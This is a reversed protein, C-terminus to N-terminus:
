SCIQEDSDYSIERLPNITSPVFLKLDDNDSLLSWYMMHSFIFMTKISLLVEDHSQEESLSFLDKYTLGHQYLRMHYQKLHRENLWVPQRRKPMFFDPVYDQAAFCLLRSLINQVLRLLEDEQVEDRDTRTYLMNKIAPQSSRYKMLGEEDLCWLLATKIVHSSFFKYQCFYKSMRKVVMYAAKVVQRSERLLRSEARAFSVFGHPETWGIWPYKGQPQTFVILCDEARCLESKRAEDPWWDTIRLAPVLDVSITHLVHCGNVPKTFALQVCTNLKAAVNGRMIDFHEFSDSDIFEFDTLDCYRASSLVQKALTEFKFKVIKTNLIGNQDFLEKLDQDYVPTAAKLQVFGPPSEPLCCVKCVSSLNTLVFNFDFEDCLGIKTGEHASGVPHVECAFRYDHETMAEALEKMAMKVHSQIDAFTNRLETASEDYNESLKKCLLRQNDGQKAAVGTVDSYDCRCGHYIDQVYSAKDCDGTVNQLIEHMQAKSEEVTDSSDPLFNYMYVSIDLHHSAIFSSSKTLRLFSMDFCQQIDLYQYCTKQYNDQITDDPKKTKLVDRTTSNGGMSAYHLATRGFRDQKNIHEDSFHQIFEKVLSDWESLWPNRNMCAYHLPTRNLDDVSYKAVDSSAIMRRITGLEVENQTRMIFLLHWFNRGRKDTITFSNNNAHRLCAEVAKVGRAVHLPTLGDKNQANIDAGHKVLCEVTETVDTSVRFMTLQGYVGVAYHLPTNGHRDADSRESGLFEVQAEIRRKKISPAPETINNAASYQEEQCPNDLIGQTAIPMTMLFGVTNRIVSHKRCRTLVEKVSEAVESVALLERTVYHLPTNRWIDTLEVDIDQNLLFVIVDSTQREFAIHLPTKGDNNQFNLKAGRQVLLQVVDLGHCVAEHLPRNGFVDAADINAGHEILLEVLEVLGTRVVCHIPRLGDVNEAEVDAGNELLTTITQLDTTLHMATNCRCDVHGDFHLHTINRDNLAAAFSNHRSLYQVIDGHGCYSAVDIPQMNDFNRHYIDAGQKVLAKVTDLRGTYVAMTLASQNLGHKVRNACSGNKVLVQLIEEIDNKGWLATIGLPDQCEYELHILEAGHRILTLVADSHGRVAAICVPSYDYNYSLSDVDAGRDILVDIVEVHGDRASLWLPTCGSNDRTETKASYDLLTNVIDVSGKESAFGLPSSGINSQTNVDAGASLLARVVDIQGNGAACSLPTRGFNNKTEIAAGKDLLINVIDIYGKDSAVSLASCGDNRQTNVDAGASVLARVVDTQGKAASFWLPTSGNNYRTETQAGKELLINVINVYGKESAIGLASSDNNRRTNIDAGASVLARVVDTHGNAAAFFLPTRSENDSTETFVGNALLINM